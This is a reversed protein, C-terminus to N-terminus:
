WYSLGQAALEDDYAEYADNALEFGDVNEICWRVYRVDEEIVKWTKEGRHKKLPWDDDLTLPEYRRAM